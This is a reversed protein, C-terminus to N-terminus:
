VCGEGVCVCLNVNLVIPSQKIRQYLNADFMDTSMDEGLTVISLQMYNCPCRFM